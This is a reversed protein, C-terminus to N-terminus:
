SRGRTAALGYLQTPHTYDCQVTKAKAGLLVIIRLYLYVPVPQVPRHYKLRLCTISSVSKTERANKENRDISGSSNKANRVNEQRPRM